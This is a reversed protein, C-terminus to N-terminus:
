RAGMLDRLAGGPDDSRVLREGVLFADYGAARLREVDARGHIGSEAVKVRDQPLDEAMAIVRDLSTEFTALDRANVGLIGAGSAIALAPDEDVFLELLVELELEGALALLEALREATLIRQILLVADAGLVATELLQQRSFIFDKRMVPVSVVDRVTPIWSPDGLFYEPEVVVSIASAGAGAYLRALAVPDFPDRLVGASPSAYKCEAIVRPGTQRLADGLSRLGHRRRRVVAEFARAELDPAAPAAKM